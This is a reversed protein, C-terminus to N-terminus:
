LRCVLKAKTEHARLHTYSVPAVVVACTVLTSRSMDRAGQSVGRDSWEATARRCRSVSTALQTPPTMVGGQPAGSLTANWVWDELYGAQLMNRILRLLRSDHIKESLTDLM